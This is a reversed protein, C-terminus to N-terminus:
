TDKIHDLHFALTIQLRTAATNHNQVNTCKLNNRGMAIGKEKEARKVTMRLTTVTLCRQKERRFKEKRQFLDM